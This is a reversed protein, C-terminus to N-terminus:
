GTGIQTRDEFCLPAANVSVGARMEHAEVLTDAEGSRQDVVRQKGRQEFFHEVFGRVKVCAKEFDGGGGGEEREGVESQEVQGVRRRQEVDARHAVGIRPVAGHEGVGELPVVQEALLETRDSNWFEIKLEQVEARWAQDAWFWASAKYTVGVEIAVEQWFGGYEGMGAWAGRIAGSHYGDFARWDTRIATGWADGHDDPDDMRWHRAAEYREGQEEFGPNNLLNAHALTSAGTILLAVLGFTYKNM